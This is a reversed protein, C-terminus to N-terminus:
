EFEKKIAAVTADVDWTKTNCMTQVVIPSGGGIVLSGSGINVKETILRM